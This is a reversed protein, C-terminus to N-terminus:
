HTIWGLALEGVFGGALVALLYGLNFTMVALMLLYGMTMTTVQFLARTLQITTHWRRGAGVEPGDAQSLGMKLYNDAEDGNCRSPRKPNWRKEAM